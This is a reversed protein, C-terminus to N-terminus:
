AGDPVEVMDHTFTITGLHGIEKSLDHDILVKYGGHTVKRCFFVDEGIMSYEKKGDKQYWYTDFWPQPLDKFVNANILAVGLGVSNVQEIGTSEPLTYCAKMDLNVANPISPIVRQVYNCAVFDVGHAMLRHFTDKPFTMDSDLLLLMDAGENLARQALFERAMHILSSQQNVIELELPMMPPNSMIYAIMNNFSVLFDAHVQSM